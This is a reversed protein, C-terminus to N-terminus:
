SVSCPHCRPLLDRASRLVQRLRPRRTKTRERLSAQSAGHQDAFAYAPFTPDRQFTPASPTLPYAIGRPSETQYYSPPAIKKNWETFRNDETDRDPHSRSQLNCSCRHCSPSLRPHVPYSSPAEIDSAPHIFVIWTTQKQM